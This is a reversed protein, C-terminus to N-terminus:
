RSTQYFKYIPQVFNLCTNKYQNEANSCFADYVGKSNFIRKATSFVANYCADQEIEDQFLNCFGFVTDRKESNFVAEQAASIICMIRPEGEPVYSCSAAARSIDDAHARMILFGITSFCSRNYPASVGSCASSMKTFNNDFLQQLRAPMFQYCAPQYKKDVITCPYLADENLHKTYHGTEKSHGGDANEM